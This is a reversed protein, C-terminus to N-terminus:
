FSHSVASIPHFDPYHKERKEDDFSRTKQIFCEEVEAWCIKDMRWSIATTNEALPRQEWHNVTATPKCFDGRVPWFSECHQM